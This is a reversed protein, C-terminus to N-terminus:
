QADSHEISQLCSKALEPGMAHLEDLSVGLISALAQRHSNLKGCYDEETGGGQLYENLSQPREFVNISEM